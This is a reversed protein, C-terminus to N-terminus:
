SGSDGEGHECGKKLKLLRLLHASLLIDRITISVDGLPSAGLFEGAVISLILDRPGLGELTIVYEGKDTLGTKIKLGLPKLLNLFQLTTTITNLFDEESLEKPKRFVETYELRYRGDPEKTIHIHWENPLLLDFISSRLML